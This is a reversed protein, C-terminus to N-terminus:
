KAANRIAARQRISKFIRGAPTGRKGKAYGVLAARLKMDLRREEADHLLEEYAAVSMVVAAARGNHTLVCPRSNSKLQNTHERTNRAFDTLSVIDKELVLNM